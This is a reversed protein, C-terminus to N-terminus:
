GRVEAHYPGITVRECARGLDGELRGDRAVVREVVMKCACGLDGEFSRSRFCALHDNGPQISSIARFLFRARCVQPIGCGSELIHNSDEGWCGGLRLIWWGDRKGWLICRLPRAM